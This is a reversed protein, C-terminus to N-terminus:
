VTCRNHGFATNPQRTQHNEHVQAFSKKIKKTGVQFYKYM